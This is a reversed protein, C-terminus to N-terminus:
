RVGDHKKSAVVVAGKRDRLVGTYLANHQDFDLPANEDGGM